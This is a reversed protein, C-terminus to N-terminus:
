INDFICKKYNILTEGNIDCLENLRFFHKKTKENKLFLIGNKNKDYCMYLIEGKPLNYEIFGNTNWEKEKKFFNIRDEILSQNKNGIFTTVPKIQFYRYKGNKEAILDIGYIEDIKGNTNQVLYGSNTLLEKVHVEYKKGNFTEIITNNIIEDYCEEYTFRYKDLTRDCLIEGYLGNAICKLDDNSRGKVKSGKLTKRDFNNDYDDIYAEIFEYITKPNYKDFLYTCQGICVSSIYKKLIVNCNQNFKKKLNDYYESSKITISM